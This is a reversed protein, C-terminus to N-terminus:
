KIPKILDFNLPANPPPAGKGPKTVEAIEGCFAEQKAPCSAKVRSYVSDRDDAAGPSALHKHIWAKYDADKAVAGAVSDVNKWEVMLRLLADTYLEEVPGSDCHRYDVYAKQLSPWSVVREIAKEAAASDGKSCVKQAQASVAAAAACCLLLRMLKM